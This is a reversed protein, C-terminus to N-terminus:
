SGIVQRWQKQCLKHWVQIICVCPLLDSNGSHLVSNILFKNSVSLAAARRKLSYLPAFIAFDTVGHLL